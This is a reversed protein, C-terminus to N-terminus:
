LDGPPTMGVELMVHKLEARARDYQKDAAQAIRAARSIAKDRAKKTAVRSANSFASIARLYDAFSQDYLAAAKDLRKVRPASAFKERINRFAREWAAARERFKAPTITSRVLERLSPKMEQQVIRGGEQALPHIAQYYSQVAHRDATANGGGFVIALAVGAALL